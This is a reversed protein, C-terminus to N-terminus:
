GWKGNVNNWLDQDFVVDAQQPASAAILRREGRISHPARKLTGSDAEASLRRVLTRRQV